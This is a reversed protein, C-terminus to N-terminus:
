QGFESRTSQTPVQAPMEEVLKQVASLLDTVLVLQSCYLEYKSVQNKQYFVRALIQSFVERGDVTPPTRTPAASYSLNDGSLGGSYLVQRQVFKWTSERFSWYWSGDSDKREVRVSHLWPHRDLGPRDPDLSIQRDEDLSANLYDIIKSATGDLAESSASLRGAEIVKPEPVILGPVMERRTWTVNFASIDESFSRKTETGSESADRSSTVANGHADQITTPLTTSGNLLKELKPGLGNIIYSPILNFTGGPGGLNAQMNNGVQSLYEGGTGLGTKSVPLDFIDKAVVGVLLAAKDAYNKANLSDAISDLMKKIVSQQTLIKLKEQEIALREAARRKAEDREAQLSKDFASRWHTYLSALVKLYGCEFNEIESISYGGVSRTPAAAAAALLANKASTCDDDSSEEFENKAHGLQGLQDKVGSEAGVPSLFFSIGALIIGIKCAQLDRIKYKKM